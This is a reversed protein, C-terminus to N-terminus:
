VEKNKQKKFIEIMHRARKLHANKSYVGQYVRLLGEELEKKTMNKPNFVLDFCSYLDWRKDNVPLRGDKILKSRIRTGPFPTLIHYQGLINNELSFDILQNFVDRNDHDFGVIFAGLIQIGHSQIKRCAESYMKLRKLKLKNRQLSALNEPILSEFGIFVTICGSREMLNLLKEDEAISVDSETFYKIRLPILAELLEYSKKRNIFMNDDNFIIRRNVSLKQIAEVESIIQKVSKNRFKPGYVETVTCFSCDHPCGRTTQTPLLNFKEVDVLDYRPIPSEELRIQKKNYYIDKVNGSLFDEILKPWVVEGEGVVVCDCFRRAEEPLISAHIGGIVTFIGRTKFEQAIEYGRLAQETMISIGVLDFKEEFNITSAREDIIIVEIDPPTCAAITLLSLSPLYFTPLYENTDFFKQLQKYGSSYTAKKSRSPYILGIKM